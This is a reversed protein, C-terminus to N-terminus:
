RRVAARRVRCDRSIPAVVQRGDAFSLTARALEFIGATFGAPAACSASLFSHREGDFTYRRGLTLHLETVHGLGAALEPIRTSLITGFKGRRRHSVALPLVFAAQVPSSGYFHLLMGPRGGLRANFALVKGAAPIAPGEPFDVKAGFTGHGVLAPRCAALAAETTTQQVSAITCTPLGVASLRGARNVAISIDRLAPPRTGDATSIESGLRVTVPAPRERPLTRPTLQADVSVRLAEHQFVEGRAAAGGLAVLALAAALAMRMSSLKPEARVLALQREILVTPNSRHRRRIAADLDGLSVLRMDVDGVEPDSAVDGSAHGLGDLGWADSMSWVPPPDIDSAAVLRISSGISDSRGPADPVVAVAALPQM